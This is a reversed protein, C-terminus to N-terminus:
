GGSGSSVPSGPEYQCLFDRIVGREHMLQTEQLLAGNAREVSAFTYHKHADLAIYQMQQAEERRSEAEPYSPIM